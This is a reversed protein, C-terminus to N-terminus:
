KRRVIKVRVKAGDFSLELDKRRREKKSFNYFAVTIPCM